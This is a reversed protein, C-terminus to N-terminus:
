MPLDLMKLMWLHCCLRIKRIEDGESKPQVSSGLNGVLLTKRYYPEDDFDEDDYAEFFRLFDENCLRLHKITESNELAREHPV